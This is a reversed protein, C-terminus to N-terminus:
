ACGRRFTALEPDFRYWCVFDPLPMDGEFDETVGTPRGCEVCTGGDILQDLLRLVARRPTMGAAADFRENGGERVLLGDATIRHGVVAMWITPEEEECYRIQFTDAGTRGIMEVAAMFVPDDAEKLGDFTV